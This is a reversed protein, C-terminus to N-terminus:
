KEFIYFLPVVEYNRTIIDRGTFNLIEDYYKTLFDEKELVYEYQCEVDTYEDCQEANIKSKKVLYFAKDTKIISGYLKIIKENTIADTNIRISHNKMLAGKSDIREKNFYAILEGNEFSIVDYDQWIDGLFHSRYSILKSNINFNKKFKIWEESDSYINTSSESVGDLLSLFIVNKNSVTGIPICNKDNNYIKSTNYRYILNDSVFLYDSNMISNETLEPCIIKDYNLDLKGKRVDIEEWFTLGENTKNNEKLQNNEVYKNKNCGSILLAISLLMLILYKKVRCINCIKNFLEMDLKNM